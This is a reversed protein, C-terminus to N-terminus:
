YYYYSVLRKSNRNLTSIHERKGQGDDKVTYKTGVAYNWEPNVGISELWNEGLGVPRWVDESYVSKGEKLTKEIVQNIFKRGRDSIEQHSKAYLDYKDAKATKKASRKDKGHIEDMHAEGRLVRSKRTYQLVRNSSDTYESDLQNLDRATGRADRTGESGYRQKGLETLTGDENQYRRVGWKMGQIGYHALYSKM